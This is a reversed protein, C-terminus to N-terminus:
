IVQIHRGLASCALDEELSCVIGGQHVHLILLGSSPSRIVMVITVNRTTAEGDDDGATHRPQTSTIAGDRAMGRHSFVISCYHGRM